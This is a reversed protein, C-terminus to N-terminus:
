RGWQWTGFSRCSMWAPKVSSAGVRTLRPDHKVKQNIRWTEAEDPHEALYKELVQEGNTVMSRLKWTKFRKGGCGVRENAYFAPGGDELKICLALFGVITAIVPAILATFALDLARKAFRATPRLLQKRVELGVVGGVERVSIGLSTMGILNPIVILHGFCHGYFDLFNLLDHRSLGPMCVIGYPIRQSGTIKLSHFLPGCLVDPGVKEYQSANDDLVAVPKLGIGPNKILTEHVFKGTVGYGLIAVPSGWWTRSAFMQRAASRLLPVLLVTLIYGIAYVLRSQTLDHLFFTASWLAGFALTIALTSRRLEEVPNVTVGPYLGAATFSCFTLLVAVFLPHSISASRTSVTFDRLASAALMAVVIGVLDSAMLCAITGLPRSFTTSNPLSEASLNLPAALVETNINSTEILDM